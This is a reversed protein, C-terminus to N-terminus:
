KISVKQTFRFGDKEVVVCYIAPKLNLALKNRGQCLSQTTVKLGQLNYISATAGVKSLDLLDIVIGGNGIPYVKFTNDNKISKVGNGGSVKVNVERYCQTGTGYFPADPHQDIENKEALMFILKFDGVQNDTTIQINAFISDIDAEEIPENTRGGWWQYGEEPTMDINCMDTYDAHYEVTGDQTSGDLFIKHFTMNDNVTWGVPVQVAVYGYTIFSDDRGPDDPFDMDAVLKVDFTSNTQVEEPCYIVRIWLCSIFLISLSITMFANLLLRKCKTFTFLNEM